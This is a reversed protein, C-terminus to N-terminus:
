RNHSRMQRAGWIVRGERAPTQRAGGQARFICSSGPLATRRSGQEARTGRGTPRGTAGNTLRPAGTRLVGSRPVGAASSGALPPASLQLTGSPVSLGGEGGSRSDASGPVLCSNQDGFALWSCWGSLGPWLRQERDTTVYVGSQGSAPGAPRPCPRAETGAVDAKGRSRTM